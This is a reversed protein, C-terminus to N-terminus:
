CLSALFIIVEWDNTDEALDTLIVSYDPLFQCLTLHQPSVSWLFRHRTIEKTVNIMQMRVQLQQSETKRGKDSNAHVFTLNVGPCSGVDNFFYFTLFNFSRPSCWLYPLFMLQCFTTETFLRCRVTFTSWCLAAAESDLFLYFCLVPLQEPTEKLLMNDSSKTTCCILLVNRMFEPAEQWLSTSGSKEDKRSVDRNNAQSFCLIFPLKVWARATFLSYLLLLVPKSKIIQFIM